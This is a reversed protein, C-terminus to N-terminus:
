RCPLVALTAAADPNIGTVELKTNLSFTDNVPTGNAQLASQQASKAVYSPDVLNTVDDNPVNAGSAAWVRRSIQLRSILPTPDRMVFANDGLDAQAVDQLWTKLDDAASATQVASWDNHGWAAVQSAATPFNEEQAKLTEFWADHFAQVLDARGQISQ